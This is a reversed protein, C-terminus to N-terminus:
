QNKMNHLASFASAICIELIQSAIDQTEKDALFEKEISEQEIGDGGRFLSLDEFISSAASLRKEVDEPREFTIGSSQMIRWMWLVIKDTLECYFSDLMDDGDKRPIKSGVLDSIRHLIIKSAIALDNELQPHADNLFYSRTQRYVKEMIDRLYSVELRVIRRKLYRSQRQRHRLWLKEDRRQQRAYQRSEGVSLYDRANLRENMREIQKQKLYKGYQSIVERVYSAKPQALSKIHNTAALITKTVIRTSKPQPKVRPLALLRIHESPKLIERDIIIQGNHRCGGFRAPKPYVIKTITVAKQKPVSQPKKANRRKLEKIGRKIQADLSPPENPFLDPYLLVETSKDFLLNECSNQSQNDM